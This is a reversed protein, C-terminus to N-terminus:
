AYVLSALAGAGTLTAHIGGSFHADCLPVQVTQEIAAKVTLLVPGTGTGTRLEITAAAAAATLVVNRVYVTRDTVQGTATVPKINSPSM